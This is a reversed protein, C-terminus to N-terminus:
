LPTWLSRCAWIALPIWLSGLTEGTGAMGSGEVGQSLSVGLVAQPWRRGGQIGWAPGPSRLSDSLGAM